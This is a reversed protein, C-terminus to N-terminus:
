CTPKRMAQLTVGSKCIASKTACLFAYELTRNVVTKECNRLLVNKHRLTTWRGPFAAIDYGCIVYTYASRATMMNHNHKVQYHDNQDAADCQDKKKLPYNNTNATVGNRGAFTAVKHRYDPQVSLRIEDVM